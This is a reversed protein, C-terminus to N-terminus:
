GDSGEVIREIDQRANEEFQQRDVQHNAAAVSSELLQDAAYKLGSAFGVFVQFLAIVLTWMNWRYSAPGCECDDDFEFEEDSM